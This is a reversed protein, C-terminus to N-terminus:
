CRREVVAPRRPDDARVVLDAVDDPRVEADYRDYAPLERAADAPPVRRRRAAPTLAIHVTLDAPLGRGLLLWGAVVVLADARLDVYGARTARDREADWLSPLARAGADRGAPELVERRLADLDVWDDYFADPEDRGREFRLAAARLFGAVEVLLVPRGRDAAVDAM